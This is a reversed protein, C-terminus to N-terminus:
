KKGGNSINKLTWRLITRLVSKFQPNLANQCYKKFGLKEGFSFSLHKIAVMKAM